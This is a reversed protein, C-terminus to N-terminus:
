KRESLIGLIDELKGEFKEVTNEVRDIKSNTNAAALELNKLHLLMETKSVFKEEAQELSIARDLQGKLTALETSVVDIRKFQASIRRELDAHNDKDAKEHETARNSLATMQGKFLGYGFIIGGAAIALNIM